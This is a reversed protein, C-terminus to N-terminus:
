RPFIGDSLHRSMVRSFSWPLHDKACRPSHLLGWIGNDWETCGSSGQGTGSPPFQFIEKSLLQLTTHFAGWHSFFSVGCRIPLLPAQSPHFLLKSPHLEFLRLPSPLTRPLGPSHPTPSSAPCARWFYSGGRIQKALRDSWRQLCKPMGVPCAQTLVKVMCPVQITNNASINPVKPSSPSCSPAHSRCPNPYGPSDQSSWM